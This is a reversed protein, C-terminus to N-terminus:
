YLMGYYMKEVLSFYRIVEGEENKPMLDSALMEPPISYYVINEGFGGTVIVPLIRGLSLNDGTILESEFDVDLVRTIIGEETVDTIAFDGHMQLDARLGRVLDHSRDEVSFSGIWPMEDEPCSKVDCYNAIYRLGILKELTIINEGEKRIWPSVVEHANSDSEPYEDHYVYEDEDYAETAADGTWVLRKGATNAFDIFMKLKDTEMKKAEEVIVLDYKKLNGLGIEDIHRSSVRKGVHAPSEIISSLLKHDGLGGDGYVILVKPNGGSDMRLAGWYLDCWGPIPITSCRTFMSFAFLLAIVLIVLVVIHALDRSITRVEDTSIDL